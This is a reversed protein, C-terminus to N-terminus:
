ASSPAPGSTASIWARAEAAQAGAFVQIEGPVLFRFANMALRIWDVDTVVAVREWRSLYELGLKFDEWAAGPEFASFDAGIEYYCRIKGPRELAQKVLPILVREYDGRTVRGHAAFAVVNDPFGALNEIM